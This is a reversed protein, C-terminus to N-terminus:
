FERKERASRFAPYCFVNTGTHLVGRSLGRPIQAEARSGVHPCQELIPFQLHPTLSQLQRLHSRNCLTNMSRDTRHLPRLLLQLPTRPTDSPRREDSLCGSATTFSKARADRASRGARGAVRVLKLLDCLTKKAFLAQNQTPLPVNFM